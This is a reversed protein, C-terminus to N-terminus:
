PLALRQGGLIVRRPSAEGKLGELFSRLVAPSVMRERESARERESESESQSQSERDKKKKAAGAAHPLELVPISGVGCRHGSGSCHCLQVRLGSHWWPVGLLPWELPYKLRSPKNSSFPVEARPPPPAGGPPHHGPPAVRPHSLLSAFPRGESRARFTVLFLSSSRRPSWPLGQM